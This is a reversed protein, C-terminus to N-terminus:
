SLVEIQDLIEIDISRFKFSARQSSTQPNSLSRLHSEKKGPSGLTAISYRRNSMDVPMLDRLWVVKPTPDGQVNCSMIASHGKEVAKLKPDEVITPFGRPLNAPALVILRAVATDPPGKGNDATCSFETQNDRDRLQEIRLTSLGDSNSDVIYRFYADM